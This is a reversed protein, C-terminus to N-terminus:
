IQIVGWPNMLAAIAAFAVALVSFMRPTVFVMM